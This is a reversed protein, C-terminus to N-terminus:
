VLKGKGKGKVELPPYEEHETASQIGLGMMAIYSDEAQRERSRMEEEELSLRLALELDDDCSVGPSSPLAPALEPVGSSEGRQILPTHAQSVSPSASASASAKGKGKKSKTKVQFDYEGSSNGRPSQGADNVGELLSLRIARQIQAEYDDDTEEQLTPLTPKQSSSSVGSISPEPTITDVSSSGTMSATEGIDAASGTGSASLRRQEDELFSEESIM